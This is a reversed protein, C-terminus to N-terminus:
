GGDSVFNRISNKLKVSLRLPKRGPITGFGVLATIFM